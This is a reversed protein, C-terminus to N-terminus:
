RINHEKTLKILEELFERKKNIVINKKIPHM